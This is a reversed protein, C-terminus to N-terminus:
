RNQRETNREGQSTNRLGAPCTYFILQQLSQEGLMTPINVFYRTILHIGEGLNHRFGQWGREGWSRSAKAWYAQGTVKHRTQPNTGTSECARVCMDSLGVTPTEVSRTGWRWQHKKFLGRWDNGCYTQSGKRGPTGSAVSGPQSASRQETDCCNPACCVCEKENRVCRVYQQEFKTAIDENTNSNNFFHRTRYRTPCVTNWVVYDTPHQKYLILREFGLSM